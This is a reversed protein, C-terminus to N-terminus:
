GDCLDVLVVFDFFVVVGGGFWVVFWVGFM